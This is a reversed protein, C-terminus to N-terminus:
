FLAGRLARVVRWGPETITPLSAGCCSAAARARSTARSPADAPNFATRVHWMSLRPCASRTLTVFAHHFAARSLGRAVLQLVSLADSVVRLHRVRTLRAHEAARAVGLLEARFAPTGPAVREWHVLRPALGPADFRLVAVAGPAAADTVYVPYRWPVPPAVRSWARMPANMPTRAFAFRAHLRAAARAARSPAVGHQVYLAARAGHVLPFRASPDIGAIRALWGAAGVASAWARSRLPTTARAVRLLIRRCHSASPQACARWRPFRLNWQVGFYKVERTPPKPRESWTINARDARDCVKTVHAMIAVPDTGAVLVNDSLNMVAVPVGASALPRRIGDASLPVDAVGAVLGSCIDSSNLWGMPLLGVAADLSPVAFLRSLEEGITFHYFASRVDGTSAYSARWLFRRVDDLERQPAAVHTRVCLKNAERADVILRREWKGPKPVAFISVAAFPARPAPVLLSDLDDYARLSVHSTAELYSATASRVGPLLTPAVLAEVAAPAWLRLVELDALAPFPALPARAMAPRSSTMPVRRWRGPLGSPEDDYPDEPDPPPPSPPLPPLPHVVPHQRRRRRRAAASRAGAQSAWAYMHRLVGAHAVFHSGAGVMHARFREKGTPLVRKPRNLLRQVEEVDAPSLPDPDRRFLTSMREPRSAPIIVPRPRPFRVVRPPPVGTVVDIPEDSMPSPPRPEVVRAPHRVFLEGQVLPAAGM